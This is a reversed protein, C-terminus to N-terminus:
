PRSRTNPCREGGKQLGTYRSEWDHEDLQVGLACEGEKFGGDQGLRQGPPGGEALGSEGEHVLAADVPRRVEVAGARAEPDRREDAGLDAHPVPPYIPHLPQGRAQRPPM